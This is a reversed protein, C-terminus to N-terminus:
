NKPFRPTEKKPFSLELIENRNERTRTTHGDKESKLKQLDSYGPHTPDNLKAWAKSRAQNMVNDILTNHPYTNPNIDYSAPNNVNAKMEAMSNKVDQRSSLYNLAEEVNKFKKYGITIPVTGIANQFHARVKANKTFSYGGYAYTTSKLDYNSDLLLRRGPTDNRIDMQIPSIANVSRGIINWNKIPKGNLIDSKEPLKDGAFVEMFQNRNRISSWMDSNLEKMHPNIWKGFENRMGALPISNNMINGAGKEWAGPKFQAMQMMQDLGSMYTKSTLGRGIVFAVAQLRKEAWESGMLEVNDGIDAIASFITNYPELGSYDFGVDGVYFHNPKWGANIWNQKLGKDAPGNGTLQGAMYMGAFTTVTAAGVAQRGAFLNRANALDNANDIGYKRLATFDDGTHRLIDISEKHLAGLLPTNKYTFNLGNIGTRAFLYFPQILPQKKFVKDLDKAWGKLESTLTVEEYQKKLWNDTGFDIDGEKNLFNKYYNDEANKLIDPTLKSYDGGAAELAERFGKEKARTRAMLWKFTDDIASMARPSWTFLKNNNMTRAINAMYFAAKDAATGNRETWKAFLNWNQDGRTPGESYRTRIDAIDANWKSKFNKRFVTFSEPILEFMGKLKAISATKSAIDGTFPARFTAGAAENIANLYSNTTTGLLARLPTKPGSLISNVMVGHLEGLLVGTNIKGAFEGGRIKTRMWADFDKWNHIDNSIKFVDLIGEALEDSDSGELVQMLLRVGDKTEEGFRLQEGDVLKDIERIQKVTLEGNNELMKKTALDWKFQTKKIETLGMTLNKAINTMPGGKAFIDGKGLTEGTADAYARLRKILSNVVADKVQLNEIVWKKTDSLKEGPKFKMELFEKPWFDEPSLSAADRGLIEQISALSSNSLNKLNRNLPNLAQLRQTTNVKNWYADAAQKNWPDPIGSKSFEAREIPTFVDSTVGGEIGVQGRMEDFQDVVDYIDDRIGVSGQGAVSQINKHDGFTSDLEGDSEWPDNWKSAPGEEVITKQDLAADFKDNLVQKRQKWVNDIQNIPKKMKANTSVQLRKWLKQPLNPPIKKLFKGAIPIAVANIGAHFTGETVIEGKMFDAHRTWANDQGNASQLSGVLTEPHANIVRGLVPEDRMARMANSQSDVFLNTGIAEVAIVEATSKAATLGYITAGKATFGAGGATIGGGIGFAAGGAVVPAYRGVEFLLPDSWTKNVPNLIGYMYSSPDDKRLLFNALKSDTEVFSEGSFWTSIDDWKKEKPNDIISAITKEGASLIADATTNLGAALSQRSQEFGGEITFPNKDFETLIAKRRQHRYAAQPNMLFRSLQSTGGQPSMAQFRNIPDFASGIMDLLQPLRSFLTKNELSELWMDTIQRDREPTIELGIKKFFSVDYFDAFTFEGDGNRDNVATLRQDNRITNVLNWTAGINKQGGLQKHKEWLAVDDATMVEGNGFYQEVFDPALNNEAAIRDLDYLGTIPNAEYKPKWKSAVVEGAKTAFEEKKNEISQGLSQNEQPQATELQAEKDAAQEAPTRWDEEPYANKIAEVEAEYGETELNADANSVADANFELEDM